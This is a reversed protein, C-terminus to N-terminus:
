EGAEAMKELEGLATEVKVRAKAAKRYGNEYAKIAKDSEIILDARKEDSSDLKTM